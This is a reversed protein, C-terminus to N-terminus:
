SRACTAAIRASSSAVNTRTTRAILFFSDDGFSASSTVASTCATLASRARDIRWARLRGRNRPDTARIEVLQAVRDLGRDRRVGLGLAGVRHEAIV